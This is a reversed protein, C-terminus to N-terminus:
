PFRWQLNRDPSPHLCSWRPLNRCRPFSVLYALRDTPILASPIAVSESLNVLTLMETLTIVAMRSRSSRLSFSNVKILNVM